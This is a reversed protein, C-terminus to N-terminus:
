DNINISYNILINYLKKPIYKKYREAVEKIYAEKILKYDNFAEEVQTLDYGSRYIRKNGIRCSMFLKNDHIYCGTPLNTTKKFQRVFIDNIIQPVFICTEPSYIKNGKIMIDKDLHMTENDIEYYNDEYWEGFKQLNLWDTCVLCDRYRAYRNTNLLYPNYCRRIMDTWVNYLRMNYSSCFKGDGIYGVDYITRDYPNRVSGKKFEAYSTKTEYKYEDLFRVIINSSNIYSVIEMKTGYRNKNIEGKRSIIMFLKVGRKNILCMM